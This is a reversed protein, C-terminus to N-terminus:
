SLSRIKQAYVILELGIRREISQRSRTWYLPKFSKKLRERVEWESGGYPPGERKEMVFFVGLLHGQEKLLQSWIKVMENRRKPRVACYATHEFIIDFQNKWEPKPKFIDGIEFNLNPIDKYKNKAREIAEPSFDISTVLHGQQALFAADNGTGAGLCLIKSRPIKLQPLVSKLIPTAAELEWLPTETQYINTWFDVNDIEPKDILWNPIEYKQGSVEITEDDFSDLLDFFQFQAPRSFVFPIETNTMGHFRDWEDLSLSSISFQFETQYPLQIWWEEGRREVQRAVFPADFTEVVAWEGEIETLCRGRVMRLNQLMKQGLPQDEVRLGQFIWYGEEDIQIFRKPAFDPLPSSM